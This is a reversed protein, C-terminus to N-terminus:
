GEIKYYEKDKVKEFNTIRGIPKQSQEIYTKTETSIKNIESNLYKCSDILAVKSKLQDNLQLVGEFKSNLRKITGSKLKSFADGPFIKRKHRKNIGSVILDTSLERVSFDNKYEVYLKQTIDSSLNLWATITENWGRYDHVMNFYSVLLVGNDNVFDDLLSLRELVHDAEKICYEDISMSQIISRDKEGSWSGKNNATDKLTHMYGFSYYRSVLIDLPNRIQCIMKEGIKRTRMKRVPCLMGPSTISYDTNNAPNNNGSYYQTGTLEAISKFYKYLFMSGSKHIATIAINKESLSM